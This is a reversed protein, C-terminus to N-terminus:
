REDFEFTKEFQLGMDDGVTIIVSLRGNVGANVMLQSSQVFMKSADDGSLSVWLGDGPDYDLASLDCVVGSATALTPTYAVVDVGNTRCFIDAPAQQAACYVFCCLSDGIVLSM